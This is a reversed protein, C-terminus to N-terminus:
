TKTRMFLTMIELIGRDYTSASIGIPYNACEPAYLPQWSVGDLLFRQQPPISVRPM